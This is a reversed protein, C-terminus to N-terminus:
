RSKYSGTHQTQTPPPGVPPSQANSHLERNNHLAAVCQFENSLYYDNTAMLFISIGRLPLVAM